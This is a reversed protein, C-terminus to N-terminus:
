SREGLPPSMVAPRASPSSSCLPPQKLSGVCYPGLFDSGLQDLLQLLLQHALVLSQHGRSAMGSIPGECLRVAVLSAGLAALRRPASINGSTLCRPSNQRWSVVAIPLPLPLGPHTISAPLQINAACHCPSTQALPQAARRPRM